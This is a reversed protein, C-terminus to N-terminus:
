EAKAAKFKSFDFKKDARIIDPPLPSQSFNFCDLMNNAAGDRGTLSSLMFKTEILRLTSTFDYLTHVVTGSLAYPSIVLAPVRFGFGWEDTQIPAVHDYYGGYDDWTVIIACNAWYKSQMVANVLGTVYKMGVTIDEPPHESDATNPVIWCVQPLTGDQLDKYFHTNLELNALAARSKKIQPFGPLPNRYAEMLPKYGVYYKWSIGAQILEDVIEPFLYDIVATAPYNHVLGGCQAAVIYLHNSRSADHVSSFFNDCLVYNQAYDWYNPIMTYDYYSVCNKAWVPQTPPGALTKAEQDALAENQEGVDPGLEDEDDIFGSPSLIEGSDDISATKAQGKPGYSIIKILKHNYPPVVIDGRYYAASRSYVSWYFGDMLGNDYAEVASIWVHSLDPQSTSKALFPALVAPGGPVKPLLTGAPIRNAGPYTGFYNDFSHNEQIIVIINEIPIDANEAAFTRATSLVALALISTEVTRMLGRGRRRL